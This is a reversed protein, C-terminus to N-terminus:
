SNEAFRILADISECIVERMNTGQEQAKAKVTEYPWGGITDAFKAFTKQDTFDGSVLAAEGKFTPALEIYKKWVAANDGHDVREMQGRFSYIFKRFQRRRVDAERDLISQRTKADRDKTLYHTVLAALVTLLLTVVWKDSM